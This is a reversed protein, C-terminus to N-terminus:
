AGIVTFFGLRVADLVVLLGTLRSLWGEAAALIEVPATRRDGTGAMALCTNRPCNHEAGSM